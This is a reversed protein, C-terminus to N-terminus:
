SNEFHRVYKEAGARVVSVMEKPDVFHAFYRYFFRSVMNRACVGRRVTGNLGPLDLTRDIGDTILTGGPKLFKVCQRIIALRYRKDVYRVVNACIVVDCRDFYGEVDLVDRRVFEDLNLRARMALMDPVFGPVAPFKLQDIGITQMELGYAQLGSRCSALAAGTSCGVDLVVMRGRNRSAHVYIFNAVGTCDYRCKWTVPIKWSKSVLIM